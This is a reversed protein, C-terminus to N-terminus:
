RAAHPADNQATSELERFADIRTGRRPRRAGAAPPADVGTRPPLPEHREVRQAADATEREQKKELYYSYNGAYHYIRRNEMDLIDSCVSDLFYRDHTVMLLAASSAALYEELWETMDTDLHNTPEDLILLDSESILVNALAM